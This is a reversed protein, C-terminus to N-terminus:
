STQVLPTGCGTCFQEHQSPTGCNGCRGSPPRFDHIVAGDDGRSVVPDGNLGRARRDASMAGVAADLLRGRETPLELIAAVLGGEDSRLWDVMIGEDATGVQDVTEWRIEVAAVHSQGAAASRIDGLRTDARIPRPVQGGGIASPDNSTSMLVVYRRDTVAVIAFCEPYSDEIEGVTASMRVAELSAAVAQALVREGEELVFLVQGQALRQSALNQTASRQSKRVAPVIVGRIFAVIGIVVLSIVLTTM